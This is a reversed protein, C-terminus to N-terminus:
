AEYGQRLDSALSPHARLVLLAFVLDAIGHALLFARWALMDIRSQALAETSFELFGFEIFIMVLVLGTMVAPVGDAVRALVVAAMGAALYFVTHVVLYAAGPTLGTSEALGRPLMRGGAETILAGGQGTLLGAILLVLVGVAAAILGIRIGSSWRLLRM